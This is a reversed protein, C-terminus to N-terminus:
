HTLHEVIFVQVEGVLFGLIAGVMILTKEDARFVPRLVNEFEEPTMAAMKESMTAEIDLTETLYDSASDLLLDPLAVLAESAFAACMPEIQTLDLGVRAVGKTPGSLIDLFGDFLRGASIGAFQLNGFDIDSFLPLDRLEIDVYNSLDGLEERLTAELVEAVVKEVRDNDPGSCLSRILRDPTLVKTGILSGYDRAVPIRHQQFLGQWKIFGLYKKPERPYFILRLAAWDTFWGTFLGFLPMVWPNHTLAWVAVQVLGIFFGFVFGSRRIFAFERRGVSKFMSELTTPDNLFENTAMTKLDFVEDVRDVVGDVVSVIADPASRQVREIVFDQVPAPLMNWLTPQYEALIKRTIRSVEARLPRDIRAALEAPDVREAIEKANILRPTLTDCLITVMQPARKPIIGQWGLPGIGTFTHPRFMMRIAVLKTSWGILAAVFPMAVYIPWNRQFDDTIEAWTQM